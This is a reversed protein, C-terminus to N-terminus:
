SLKAANISVCQGSSYLVHNNRERGGSFSSVAGWGAGGSTAATPAASWWWWAGLARFSGMCFVTRSRGIFVRRSFAVAFWCFPICILKKKTGTNQQWHLNTHGCFQQWVSINIPKISWKLDGEGGLVGLLDRLDLDLVGLFDEFFDLDGDRDGWREWLFDLFLLCQSQQSKYLNHRPTRKHRSNTRYFLTPSMREKVGEKQLM